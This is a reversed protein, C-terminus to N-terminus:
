LKQLERLKKKQKAIAYEIRTLQNKLIKMIDDMNKYDQSVSDYGKEFAFMYAEDLNYIQGDSLLVDSSERTTKRALIISKATQLYTRYRQLQQIYARYIKIQDAKNLSTLFAIEEDTLFKTHNKIKQIKKIPPYKM